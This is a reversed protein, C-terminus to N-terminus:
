RSSASTSTRGQLLGAYLRVYRSVYAEVGYERIAKDKANEALRAALSKDRVLRDIAAALREVDGAPVLLGSLEADIMEANGGVATAVIPLGAVMYEMIANPAGETQSCLVAIDLDALFAPIDTVTGLLKFRDQLGLSGILQELEARCEGAGAVRFVMTPHTEALKAAARVLVDINKWPKLNAVAGVVPGATARKAARIAAVPQFRSLDVGNPIIVVSDPRAREDAIVSQRAAECNAVTADVLRSCIRGLLRDIPRVWFGIDLRSRVICPVRALKGALVGLYTSDAFFTQLVDIRERRLFRALRLSRPLSSPHHLAKVELRLVPCDGPELSRSAESAGNLICLCPQIRSRDLRNLLLLLQSEVGAVRLNDIMFCVRLPRELPVETPAVPSESPASPSQMLMVVHKGIGRQKIQPAWLSLHTQRGDATNRV